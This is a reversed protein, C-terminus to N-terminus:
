SHRLPTVAKSDFGTAVPHSSESNKSEIFASGTAIPHSTGTAVPHSARQKKSWRRWDGSLTFESPVGNVGKLGGRREWRIFGTEGLEQKAKTFTSPHMGLVDKAMANTFKFVPHGTTKSASNYNLYLAYLLVRLAKASLSRFAESQQMDTTVRSFGGPEAKYRSRTNRSAM